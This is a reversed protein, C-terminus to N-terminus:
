AHSATSDRVQDLIHRYVNLTQMVVEDPHFRKFAVERCRKGMVQNSPVNRLLEILQTAIQHPDNQNVRFGTLGEEVMYPIGNMDSAVIPVGAAMAEGIIMPATEQHSVLALCAAQALEKTLTDRDVNGLFKVAASLGSKKVYSSCAHLTQKDGSGALHLRSSPIHEHVTHFARLLGLINKRHSIRGVYLILPIFSKREIEFFERSIPNEIHWTRGRLQSKLETMVYPNIIITDPSQQRGLREILGILFSRSRSFWRKSFLADNEPIGHITFVYPRNYFLTWGAIGQFHTLDPQIEHLQRHLARRFTSWYGLFGPLRSNPIWHITIGDRQETTVAHKRSPSLVHIEVSGIRRLSDILNCSVSEVGGKILGNAEPFPTVMALKIRRAHVLMHEALKRM